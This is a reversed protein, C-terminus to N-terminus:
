QVASEKNAPRGGPREGKGRGEGEARQRREGRPKATADGPTAEASPTAKAGDVAAPAPAAAGPAPQTRTVNVESGDKLRAFGSTVIREGVNLGKTVVAILDDQQTVTVPRVAVTAKAGEGTGEGVGQALVYVFPGSPGRQIAATPTTTVGKLTEVKVRVNAFQGPWLQLRENPLDAKMRITGTTQDILNDIFTVKGADIITKDDGDMAEVSVPGLEMAAKVSKLQQQPLTFQVTIPHIAAITVIGADGARILNGEDVLRQGTRGDIPALIRTYGLIAEASAIAATDSQIQAELQSVQARQTDITKQPTVNPGVRNSRELDLKANALQSDTLAKKARAQALAAQYTIPDIEALLDGRKVDQGETFHVKILKGDVQPRVTVTNLARASGVGRLYIPVDASTALAVVIPVPGDNGGRRGGGGSGNGSGGARRGSGESAQAVKTTGNAAPESERAAQKPLLADIRVWELGPVQAGLHNAALIAGAGALLLSIALTGFKM